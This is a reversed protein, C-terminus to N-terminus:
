PQKEDLAQQAAKLAAENRADKAAQERAAASQVRWTRAQAILKPLVDLLGVLLQLALRLM